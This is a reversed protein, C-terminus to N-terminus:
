QMLRYVVTGVVAGLFSFAIMRGLPLERGRTARFYVSEIPIGLLLMLLMGIGFWIYSPLSPLQRGAVIAVVVATVALLFAEVAFANFEWRRLDMTM